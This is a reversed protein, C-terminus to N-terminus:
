GSSRRRSRWRRRGRGPLPAPAVQCVTLRYSSGRHRLDFARCLEAEAQPRGRRALAYLHAQDAATAADGLAIAAQILATDAHRWPQVGGQIQLRDLWGTDVEGRRLESRGLLELLFGQNTAGEEIVVMTDAVARRLRAIAEPRTRGHAIIKAIMSDFEPPVTDGEAVGSDVRIGPGPPCGCCPSGARRPRSAWARTRPM